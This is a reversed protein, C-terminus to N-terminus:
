HLVICHGHPHPSYVFFFVRVAALYRIAPNKNNYKKKIRKNLKYVVVVLCAMITKIPYASNAAIRCMRPVDVVM